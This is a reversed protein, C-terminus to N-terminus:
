ETEWVFVPLLLDYTFYLTVVGFVYQLTELVIM